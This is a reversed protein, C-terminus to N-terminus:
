GRYAIFLIALGILVLPVIAVALRETSSYYPPLYSVLQLSLLALVFIVTIAIFNQALEEKEM